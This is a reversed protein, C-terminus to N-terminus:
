GFEELKHLIVEKRVKFDNTLQDFIMSSVVTNKQVDTLSESESTSNAKNNELFEFASEPM